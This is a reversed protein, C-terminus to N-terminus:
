IHSGRCCQKFATARDRFGEQTIRKWIDTRLFIKLKIEAHSQVDRYAKFLARLANKELESSEDFAVDLRDISIWVQYGAAKLASAASGFLDDISLYGESQAKIDPEEFVIKGSFKTVTSNPDLDVNGEVSHPNIYKIVYKRVSSLISGLTTKKDPLLQHDKLVKALRFSHENKVDYENLVRATLTLFYLKWINVFERESTPPSTSLDRFAPSGQPNEAGVLLVGRDFLAGDQDQILVYLASKGSGKPGYIIDIDGNFIRDWAQTKVFYGRLAEREEEAIQSGFSLDRLAQRKSGVSM